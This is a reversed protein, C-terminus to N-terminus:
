KILTRPYSGLIRFYSSIKEVEELARALNKDSCAGKLDIYFIYEGLQRRSPRSEIRSLDINEEAFKGLIRHLVGAENVEPACIISTKFESEAAEGLHNNEGFDQSERATLVFRTENPLDGQLNEAVIKLDYIEALRISGVAAKNSSNLVKKAAAATSETNFIKAESFNEALYEGSQAIAQPHSYIEEINEKDTELPVMLYQEIPLVIERYLKLEQHQHLLDLSLNVSGELSNELPLLGLDAEKKVVAEVIERISNYAETQGGYNSCYNFIAQESFTGPPGLYAYKLNKM